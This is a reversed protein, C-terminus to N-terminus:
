AKDISLIYKYGRRAHEARGRYKQLHFSRTVLTDLDVAAIDRLGCSGKGELVTCILAHDPQSLSIDSGDFFSCRCVNLLREQDILSTGIISCSLKLRFRRDKTFSAAAVPMPAAM